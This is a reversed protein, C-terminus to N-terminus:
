NIVIKQRYVKDGKLEIIYIGPPLSGKEIEIKDSTINDIDFVKNGSLGFVSLKYGSLDMENFEITTKDSFPNPYINMKQVSLESIATVNDFNIDDIYWGTSVNPFSGTQVSYFHFALQVKIDAFASLSAYFATWVGSSSNIFQSSISTWSTGGDTTIQLEGYDGSSFSYWHWFRIAPNNSAAPVIFPPSILRGEATEQYNGELNTAACNQGGHASAPGSTPLGIEWSGEDVYWDDFGSEFDEPISLVYPGTVLSVDDIYWGTSVNPFSGVQVSYFYFGVQVTSGAYKSLDVSGYSWCDSGQNDFRNSITQWEATGVKIQVEGYDGASFNFWSYFRLRPNESAAPVLFSSHRILRSSVPESYNGALVTAALKQGKYAAGPGSTPVGVEWTGADVHWNITWDGEFDESWLIGKQQSYTVLTALIIIFTFLLKKKM